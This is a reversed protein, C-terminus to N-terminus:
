IIWTTNKSQKEEKKNIRIQVDDGHDGVLCELIFFFHISIQYLLKALKQDGVVVVVVVVRVYRYM